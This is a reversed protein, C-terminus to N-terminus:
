CESIVAEPGLAALLHPVEPDPRGGDVLRRLADISRACLVDDFADNGLARLLDSACAVTRRHRLSGAMDIIRHLAEEAAALDAVAVGPRTAAELAALETAAVSRYQQLLPDPAPSM